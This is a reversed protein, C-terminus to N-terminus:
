SRAIGYLLLSAVAAGTVVLLYSVYRRARTQQMTPYPDNRTPASADCSPCTTSDPSVARQCILCTIQGM